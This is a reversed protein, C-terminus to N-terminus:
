RLKPPKCVKDSVVQPAPQSIDRPMVVKAYANSVSEARHYPHALTVRPINASLADALAHVCPIKDLDFRRCTCMRATINVVHLIGGCTVQIQDDDIEQATWLKSNDVRSELLKEVGTTLFTKMLSAKRRRAAFWRTLMSRAEDVLEVIPYGRADSLVKNMCEAINSTTFNYTNGPFHVRTWWRVDANVLYNHLEPDLAQIQAFILNFDVLRYAAAAKKVLKYSEKGRFKLMVNKRFHYTCVGRSALPYVIAIARSISGHRDSIVALEEDDPIVRHLQTFFWEWSEDNETDVIGFAIPFINFNGDQTTAILLTGRYKGQLFTGDVVVVKRMFRFGHISASFAIFLYKFRDADDVELKTLTGPNARRIMYLYTPLDQYGSEFSGSVLQRAFRLSRHAKWYDVRLGYRRNLGDAVHSPLVRQGVGGVFDKYLCGLIKYTAQRARASRETISCSHHQVYTKIYFAPSQGVTTARVRWSCGEVWCKATLLTPTSNGVNYDFKLAVTLMKLRLELETKTNFREGVVLDVSGCGRFEPIQNGSGNMGDGDDEEKAFRGKTTGYEEDDSSAGDPDDCYDFRSTDEGDDNRNEPWIEEAGPSSQQSGDSSDEEMPKGETSKTQIEVCLRTTETKIQQLYALFQTSNCIFVPPTDAPLSDLVKKPLLYSLQVEEKNLDLGFEECVMRMLQMFSTKRGAGVVRGGKSKDVLFFWSNRYFSWKGCVLILQEM